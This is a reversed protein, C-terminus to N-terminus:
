GGDDGEVEGCHEAPHHDDLVDEVPWAYPPESDLRQLVEVVRRDDRRHKDEGDPHHHRVGDGVDHVRDKVRPHLQLSPGKFRSSRTGGKRTWHAVVMARTLFLLSESKPPTTTM